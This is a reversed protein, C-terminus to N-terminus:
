FRRGDEEPGANKLSFWSGSTYCIGNCVHLAGYCVSASTEQGVLTKDESNQGLMDRARSRIDRSDFHFIWIRFFRDFTM